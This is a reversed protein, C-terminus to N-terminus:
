LFLLAHIGEDHFDQYSIHLHKKDQWTKGEQWTKLKQLNLWPTFPLSSPYTKSKININQQKQKHEM